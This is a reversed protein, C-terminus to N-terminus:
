FNIKWFTKKIWQSVPQHNNYSIIGTDDYIVCICYSFSNFYMQLRATRWMKQESRWIRDAEQMTYKQRTLCTFHNSIDSLEAGGAQIISKLQTQIRSISWSPSIRGAAGRSTGLVEWLTIIRSFPRHPNDVRFRQCAMNSIPDTTIISEKRNSVNRLKLSCLYKINRKVHTLFHNQAKSVVPKMSTLAADTLLPSQLMYLPPQRM